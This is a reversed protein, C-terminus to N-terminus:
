ADYPRNARLDRAPFHTVFDDHMAILVVAIVFFAIAAVRHERRALADPTVLRRVSRERLEAAHLIALEHLTGLMQRPFFRSAVRQRECRCIAHKEAMARVDQTRAMVHQDPTRRASQTRERNLKARHRARVGDANDGILGLTFENQRQAGLADDVALIELAPALHRGDARRFIVRPGLFRAFEALRDPLDGALAVVDVHHELVWAFRGERDRAQDHLAAAHDDEARSGGTVVDSEIRTIHPHALLANLA